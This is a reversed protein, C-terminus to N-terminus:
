KNMALFIPIAIAALVGLVGLVCSVLTLVGSLRWFKRQQHLASELDDSHRSVLLRGIASSYKVLYLGIFVYLLTIILYFVGMGLLAAPSMGKMGSDSLAGGIVMAGGSIGTISALIFMMVGILMVWGKTGRLASLVGDTVTANIAPRENMAPAPEAYETTM